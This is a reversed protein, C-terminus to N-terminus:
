LWMGPCLLQEDEDKIVDSTSLLKVQKELTEIKEKLMEINDELPNIYARITEHLYSEEGTREM